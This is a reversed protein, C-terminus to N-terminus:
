RIKRLLDLVIVPLGFCPDPPDPIMTYFKGTEPDVRVTGSENVKRHPKPTAPRDLRDPKGLPYRDDDTM